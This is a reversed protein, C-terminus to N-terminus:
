KCKRSRNRRRQSSSRSRSKYRRTKRIRKGGKLIPGSSEEEQKEILRKFNNSKRLFLQM